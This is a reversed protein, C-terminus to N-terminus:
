RRTACVTLEGCATHLVATIVRDANRQKSLCDCVDAKLSKVSWANSKPLDGGLDGQRPNRFDESVPDKSSKNIM